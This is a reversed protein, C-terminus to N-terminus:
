EQRGGVSESSTTYGPPVIYRNMEQNVIGMQIELNRIRQAVAEDQQFEQTMSHSPINSVSDGLHLPNQALSQQHNSDPSYSLSHHSSDQWFLRGPEDPESIRYSKEDVGYSELSTSNANSVPITFPDVVEETKQSHLSYRRKQLRKRRLYWFGFGLLILLIVSGVCGGIIAATHSTKAPAASPTDGGPTTGSSNNGSDDQFNPKESLLSFSAKYSIYDIFATTNGVNGTINATLVHNGPQLSDTNFYIFHPAGDPGDQQFYHQTTTNGDIDFTMVFASNVGFNVPKFGVVQISTGAFKFTFTSDGIKNSSHTTNGHAKPSISVGEPLPQFYEASRGDYDSVEWGETWVVESNGDDVLITQGLMNASEKPIALAYDISMNNIGSMIPPEGTINLWQGPSSQPKGDKIPQVHLPNPVSLQGDNLTFSQSNDGFAYGFLALSSWAENNSFWCKATSNFWLLTDNFFHGPSMSSDKPTIISTSSLGGPSAECNLTLDSSDYLITVTDAMM